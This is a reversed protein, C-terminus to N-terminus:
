LHFKVQQSSSSYLRLEFQDFGEGKTLAEPWDVFSM